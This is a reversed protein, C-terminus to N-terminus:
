KNREVYLERLSLLFPVYDKEEGVMNCPCFLAGNYTFWLNHNYERIQYLEEARRAVNDKRLSNRKESLRKILNSFYSM